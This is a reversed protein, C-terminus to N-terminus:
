GQLQQDFHSEIQKTFELASNYGMKKHRNNMAAVEIIAALNRGPKVPVTITPVKVDLINVYLEELGLRDYVADERWPELNIVLDIKTEEKIAIMGFIRRVDVVGIGRLEIYHRILEPATGMLSRTNVRRIEVADDAILRHGRKVLEIATESKGVGSDGLLLAGEGYVEVLVGHRTIRPALHNHLSTVISSIIVSTPESSRLVTRDYKEAMEMCEPFPEMGRAIVFAPIDKQFLTNFRERRMESTIGNLYTTEVLGIVQIREYDFYDFFGTLQLGPRNIDETSIARERYDKGGRLVELQFEDILNGLKVSLSAAM